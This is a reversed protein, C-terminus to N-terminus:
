TVQGRRWARDGTFHVDYREQERLVSEFQQLGHQVRALMRFYEFRDVAPTMVVLLEAGAGRLAGFAHPLRPPVVV